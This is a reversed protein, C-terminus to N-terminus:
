IDKFVLDMASDTYEKIVNAVAVALALKLQALDDVSISSLEVNSLLKGIRDALVLDFEGDLSDNLVDVAEVVIRDQLKETGM